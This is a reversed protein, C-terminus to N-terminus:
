RAVADPCRVPVFCDPLRGAELRRALAAHLEVALRGTGGLCAPRRVFAQQGVGVGSVPRRDSAEAGWATQSAPRATLMRRRMRPASPGACATTPASRCGAEPRFRALRPM